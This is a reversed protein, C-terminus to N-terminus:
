SDAIKLRRVVAFGAAFQFSLTKLYRLRRVRVSTGRHKMKRAYRTGDQLCIQPKNPAEM